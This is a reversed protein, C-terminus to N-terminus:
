NGDLVPLTFYFTSGQGYSSEVWIRGHYREVIKRAMALGLGTGPYEWSHLRKFPTFIEELHAREIGIGNDAVSFTWQSDKRVASIHVQPAVGSRRYKIANALLNQFLLILPYPESPVTPLPDQTIEAGSEQIASELYTLAQHLAPDAPVPLLQDVKQDSVSWYDRLDNLLTEMQKAGGVARDIYEETHPSGKDKFEEALLQTYCTVMRLPERMDHSVAYSFHRLDTNVRLLNEESARLAETARKINDIDAFTIIVGEIRDDTSRYPLLRALYWRGADDQLEREIPMLNTLVAEADAKLM